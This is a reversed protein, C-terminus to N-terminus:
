GGAASREPLKAEPLPPALGSPPAAAVPLSGRKEPVPPLRQLRKPTEVPVAAAAVVEPACRFRLAEGVEIYRKILALEAESLNAVAWQPGKEFNARVGMRELAQHESFYRKCVEVELARVPGAAGIAVALAAILVAFGAIGTRVDKLATM